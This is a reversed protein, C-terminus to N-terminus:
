GTPSAPASPITPLSTFVDFWMTGAIVLGIVGLALAGWAVARVWPAAPPRLTIQQGVLVAGAVLVAVLAFMGNFLATTHLPTGFAAAVQDATSGSQSKIQGLLQERDAILTGLWTGTVSALALGLGVIAAAGALVGSSPTGAIIDLDDEGEEDGDEDLVDGDLADQGDETNKEHTEETGQGSAAGSEESTTERAGEQAPEDKLDAAKDPKITDM